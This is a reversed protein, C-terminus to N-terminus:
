VPACIFVHRLQGITMRENAVTSAAAHVLAGAGADSAAAGAEDADDADDPDDADAGTASLSHVIGFL